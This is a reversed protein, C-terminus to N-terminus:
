RYGVSFYPRLRSTAAPDDSFVSLLLDDAVRATFEADPGVVV